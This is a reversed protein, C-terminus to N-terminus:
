LEKSFESHWYKNSINSTEKSLFPNKIDIRIRNDLNSKKISDKITPHNYFFDEFVKDDYAKKFSYNLIQALKKHKPSVFFFMAFPYTLVINKEVRLKSLREKRLEIESYIENIGRSFYDIRGGRNIMNFINEYKTVHQKLGSAELLAIDSWGIGQAGKLKQLQELTKINDFLIQDKKNIIFIRHGVLGRYLPYRIPILEEEVEKSTGMWFLNIEEGKKLEKVARSQSYINSTSQINYKIHANDLVFRLVSLKFTDRETNMSTLPYKILIKEQAQMFSITIFLISIIIKLM